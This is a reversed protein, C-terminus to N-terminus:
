VNFGLFTQKAQSAPITQLVNVTDAGLGGLKAAFAQVEEKRGQVIVEASGAGLGKVTGKLALSRAANACAAKFRPSDVSGQVMIRCEVVEGM